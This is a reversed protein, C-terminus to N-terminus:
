GKGQPNLGLAQSAKFYLVLGSGAGSDLLFTLPASNNIRAQLFIKNEGNVEIPISALKAHPVPGQAFLNNACHHNGAYISLAILVIGVRCLRLSCSVKVGISRNTKLVDLAVITFAPSKARARGTKGTSSDEEVEPM